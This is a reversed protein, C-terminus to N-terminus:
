THGYRKSPGDHAISPQSIKYNEFDVLFTNSLVSPVETDKGGKESEIGGMIIMETPTIFAQCHLARPEPLIGEVKLKTWTTTFVDLIYINNDQQKDVEENQLTYGGYLVLKNQGPIKIIKHGRRPPPISGKQSLNNWVAGPIDGKGKFSVASLDLEWLDNTNKSTYGGFLYVSSEREVKCMSHQYRPLPPEFVFFKRWIWTELNLCYIDNTKKKDTEGGM